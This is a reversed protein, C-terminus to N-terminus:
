NIYSTHNHVIHVGKHSTKGIQSFMNSKQTKHSQKTKTWSTALNCPVQSIPLWRRGITRLGIWTLDSLTPPKWLHYRVPTKIKKFLKEKSSAFLWQDLIYLKPTKIIQYILIRRDSQSINNALLTYISFIYCGFHYSPRAPLLRPLLRQIWWDVETDRSTM